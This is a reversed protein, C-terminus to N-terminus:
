QEETETQRHAEHGAIVRAEPAHMERERQERTKIARGQDLLDAISGIVACAAIATAIIAFAWTM